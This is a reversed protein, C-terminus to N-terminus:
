ENPIAGNRRTDVGVDFNITSGNRLFRIGMANGIDNIQTAHGRDKLSQHLYEPLTKEVRIEGLEEIYAIKSYDIAQQMNMDFKLLNLLIQASNQYITHGGPTGFAARPLSDNLVIMPANSSLKYWGAVADMPNGKPEFTSFALSDNMWIGTGDVLVKSGFGNGLTQTASVVNGWQDTVVFHTTSQNEIGPPLTVSTASELNIFKAMWRLFNRDLIKKEIVERNGPNGPFVLRVENALKEVEALTHLYAPTNHGIRKPEFQNMLGAIFLGAYGNGPMGSTYIDYGDMRMRVPDFWEARDTCLDDGSLFSGVAIMKRDILEALEGCYFDNVGNVAVRELTKALDHQVLLDNIKLPQGNRGYILKGEEPLANFYKAIISANFANVPVGSRAYNIADEFLDSWPTEGYERHLEHWANLLGPMGIAKAGTRNLLYDPTPPRMLDSNTKAPIRGSGNLFRVQREQADYILITGYGGISSTMPELVTLTSAVVVAADFANGGKALVREGAATALPHGSAIAGRGPEASFVSTGYTTVTFLLIYSLIKKNM